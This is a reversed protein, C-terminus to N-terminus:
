LSRAYLMFCARLLNYQTGAYFVLSRVYHACHFLGQILRSNPVVARERDCRSLRVRRDQDLWECGQFRMGPSGHGGQGKRGGKRGGGGWVM